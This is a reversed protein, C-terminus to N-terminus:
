THSKCVTDIKTFVRMRWTITDAWMNERLGKTFIDMKAQKSRSYNNQSCENCLWAEADKNWKWCFRPRKTASLKPTTPSDCEDEEMDDNVPNLHIDVVEIGTAPNPIEVQTIEQRCVLSFQMRRLSQDLASEFNKEDLKTKELIEIKEKLEANETKIATMEKQCTQINDMLEKIQANSEKQIQALGKQFEETIQQM